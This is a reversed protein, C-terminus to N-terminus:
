KAFIDSNILVDIFDLETQSKQDSFEGLFKTSENTDREM